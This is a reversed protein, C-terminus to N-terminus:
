ACYAFIIHTCWIFPLTYSKFSKVNYSLTNLVFCPDDMHFPAYSYCTSISLLKNDVFMVSLWINVVIHSIFTCVINQSPRQFQFFMFILCMIIHPVLNHFKSANLLRNQTWYGVYLAFNSYLFLDHTTNTSILWNTYSRVKCKQTFLRSEMQPPLQNHM